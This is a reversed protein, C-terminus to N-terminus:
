SVAEGSLAHGLDIQVQEDEEFRAVVREAGGDM